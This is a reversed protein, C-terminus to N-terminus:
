VVPWTPSYTELETDTTIADIEAQATVPLDRLAQQYDKMPQFNSTNQDRALNTPGDSVLLKQNREIRVEDLRQNRALPLDVAPKGYNEGTGKRWCNRFYRSQPLETEDINPLRIYNSAFPADEKFKEAINDLYQDDSEDEAQTRVPRTVSITGDEVEWIILKAM